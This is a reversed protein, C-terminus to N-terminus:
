GAVERFLALLRDAHHDFTLQHRVAQAAARRSAMATPDALQAALDDLDQYLIGVGLRRVLEQAAM